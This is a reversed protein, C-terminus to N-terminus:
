STHNNRKVNEIEAAIHMMKEALAEAGDGYRHTIYDGTDMKYTNMDDPNTGGEVRVAYYEKIQRLNVFIKVILAV